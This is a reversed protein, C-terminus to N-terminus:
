GDVCLILPDAPSIGGRHRLETVALGVVLLGPRPPDRLQWETASRRGGVARDAAPGSGHVGGSRGGDGALGGRRPAASLGARPARPARGPPGAPGARGGR